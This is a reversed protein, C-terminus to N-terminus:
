GGSVPPIIAVEHSGDIVTTSEDQKEIYEMNVAYMSAYLIEKLKDGYTAILYHSLDDLTEGPIDM